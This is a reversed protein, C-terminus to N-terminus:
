SGKGVTQEILSQRRQAKRYTRLKYNGIASGSNVLLFATNIITGPVNDSALCIMLVFVNVIVLGLSFKYIDPSQLFIKLKDM